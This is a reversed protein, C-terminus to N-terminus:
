TAARSLADAPEQVPDTTKLNAQESRAWPNAIKTPTLVITRFCSTVRVSPVAAPTTLAVTALRIWFAKWTSPKKMKKGNHALRKRSTRL